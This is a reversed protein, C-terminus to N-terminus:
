KQYSEGTPARGPPEIPPTPMLDSTAKMGALEKTANIEMVKKALDAKIKDLTVKNANAYDLMALERKILLEDRKLMLEQQKADAAIQDRNAQSQINVNDRDTDVQMKQLSTQQVIQTQQTSTQAALQAKQMEVDARIKAAAIQPAEPPPPQNAMAAKQEDDMQFRKPDLRQSRLMEAFWKEPDIGFAPNSVLAGMQQIAQNQMDREVLATSGRADIQFDGKCSDDEGYVMLWEYYRRIHPETIKDDFLRAIRRLVTGANNQLMQMGGVTDPAHTAQGQMMAPLGTVDEAMKLAFQIIAQLDAQMSPINFIQFAADVSKADAEDEVYWFKRGTLEWKGNAPKLGNRRMVIQPGSSIGANDMLNRVAATLMRQPVNMQMAVGRGHPIGPRRQWPMLDYPFEGSDLPNLAAKVVRGNVMTVIAHAYVDGDEPLGKVSAALLDDREVTGHFYWIDFVDSDSSRERKVPSSYSSDNRQPGEEIVKDIQHDLYGDIERLDRLGKRTITDHEWTFSGDHISEGADPDSYFDWPSVCRSEPEITQMMAVVASGNKMTISKRRKLAPTPGKLVGTGLRACDEIVKRVEAHWQCQVLWDEIQKTAAEAALNAAGSTDALEKAAMAAPTMPPPGAPAGPPMGPMGPPMGPMEPMGPPAGMMAPDAPAEPPMGPMAPPMGAPTAPPATQQTEVAKPNALTPKPTPKIGWSTDDTPLLMDAVRAAAADVYARTINLVVTSRNDTKRVAGSTIGGNPSSPKGAMTGRNADDVGDYADEAAQWEEEIGSAKRGAIATDLKKKLSNGLAEVREVLAEQRALDAESPETPASLKNM